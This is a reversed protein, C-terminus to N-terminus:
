SMEHLNEHDIDLSHHLDKVHVEIKKHLHFPIVLVSALAMFGVLFWNSYKVGVSSLMYSMSLTLAIGFIQASMLILGTSLEEAVPFTVKLTLIRNRVLNVDVVAEMSIPLVSTMFIGLLGCTVGLLISNEAKM